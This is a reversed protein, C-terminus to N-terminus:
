SGPSYYPGLQSYRRHRKRDVPERNVTLMLDSLGERFESKAAAHSSYKERLLSEKMVAGVALLWHFDEPLLPEEGLETLDEVLMQADITYTVVSSPAPYLHLLAYRSASRGSPIYAINVLPSSGEVLAIDGLAPLTAAQGQQGDKQIWFKDVLIWDNATGILTPTIGVVAVSATFPYGQYRYGRVHVVRPTVDSSLSSQVFLQCPAAPQRFVASKFSYVSYAYPNGVSLTLGPDHDRQSEMDIRELQLNNTRDVITNISQVAYPLGLFPTGAICPVTILQNKLPQLVKKGMIQKYTSNVHNRVRNIVVTGPNSLDYGLREYAMKEIDALNM